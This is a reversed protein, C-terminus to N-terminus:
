DSFDPALFLQSALKYIAIDESDRLPDGLYLRLFADLRREVSEPLLDRYVIVRTFGLEGLEGISEEIERHERSGVVMAEKFDGGLFSAREAANGPLVSPSEVVDFSLEALLNLYYMFENGHGLHYSSFGVDFSYFVKKGHRTQFYLGPRLARYVPHETPVEIVAKGPSVALESVFEPLEASTRELPYPVAALFLYEIICGATVALVLILRYKEKVRGAIGLLGAAALIFLSLYAMIGFRFPLSIFSSLPFVLDLLSFPLVNRLIKNSLVTEGLRPSPGWSLLLFFVLCILWFGRNFSKRKLFIGVLALVTVTYGLYLNHVFRNDVNPLFVKPEPHSFAPDDGTSLCKTRFHTIIDTANFYRVAGNVMGPTKINTLIREGRTSRLALLFCPLVLLLSVLSVMVINKVIFKKKRVEQKILLQRVFVFFTFITLSFGIYWCSVSSIFLFVIALVMHRTKGTKVVKLLYLIFFPMWSLGLLEDTGNHIAGIVIPSVAYCMGSFFAANKDNVIFLALRYMGFAAIVMLIMLMLNYSAPLSLFLSLPLVMIGNVLNMPYFHGGEPYFLDDTFFPSQGSLLCKKVFHIGWVANWTDTYPSGLVSTNLEAIIPFTIVIVLIMYLICAAAPKIEYIKKFKM